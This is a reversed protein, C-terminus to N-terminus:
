VRECTSTANIHVWFQIPSQMAFIGVFPPLRDKVALAFDVAIKSM